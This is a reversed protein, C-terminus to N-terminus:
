QPILYVDLMNLIHSSRANGEGQWNFDNTDQPGPNKFIAAGLFKNFLDQVKMRAAVFQFLGIDVIAGQIKQTMKSYDGQKVVNRARADDAWEQLLKLDNITRNRLEMPVDGNPDYNYNLGVGFYQNGASRLRSSGCEAYTFDQMHNNSRPRSTGPPVLTDPVGWFKSSPLYTLLDTKLPDPVPLNAAACGTSPLGFDLPDFRGEVVGESIVVDDSLESSILIWRAACLYNPVPITDAEAGIGFPVQRTGISTAPCTEKILFVRVNATGGDGFGPPLTITNNEPHESPIEIECQSGPPCELVVEGAAAVDYEIVMGFLTGRTAIEDNWGANPNTAYGYRGITGHEEIGGSNNPEGGGWNVYSLSEGTVWGWGVAPETGNIAQVLGIWLQQNIGLGLGAAQTLVCAEEAKAAMNAAVDGGKFTALHGLEGRLSRSEAFNQADDWGRDANLTGSNYLWIEYTSEGTSTPCGFSVHLTQLQAWTLGSSLCLAAIWATRSIIKM